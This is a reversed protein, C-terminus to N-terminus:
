VPRWQEPTIGYEIMAERQADEITEHWTDAFCEGDENIYLLLFCSGEASIELWSPGPLQTVPVPKEDVIVGIYNTSPGGTMKVRARLKIVINDKRRSQFTSTKL